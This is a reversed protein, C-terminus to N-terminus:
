MGGDFRVKELALVAEERWGMQEGPTGGTPDSEEPTGYRKSKVAGAGPQAPVPVFSVEYADAPADLAMVCLQGEYERGPCHVCSAKTQDVGCINCVASGVAVGVSCERLIGAEIATITDATQEMKPLYCRLVLRHIGGTEEVEAAYVRATLNKASWVHDMLVPKGVFLKAFGELCPVTFREFDRDVQDDCAALRFVFVEEAALPRLTQRNILELEQDDAAAMELRASKYITNM